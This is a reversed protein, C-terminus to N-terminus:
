HAANQRLLVVNFLWRYWDVKADADTTRADAEARLLVDAIAAKGVDLFEKRTELFSDISYPRTGRLAIAFDNIRPVTHGMTVLRQALRPDIRPELREPITGFARGLIEACIQDVLDMGLPFGYPASAGAGLVFVIQKSLM